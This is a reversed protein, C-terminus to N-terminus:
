YIVLDHKLARNICVKFRKTWEAVMKMTVKVKGSKKLSEGEEDESDTMVQFKYASHYNGMFYIISDQALSRLLSKCFHTIM